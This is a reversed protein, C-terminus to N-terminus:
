IASYVVIILLVFLLPYLITNAVASQQHFYSIWGMVQERPWQIYCDKLLSVLDYTFPGYMADQFDIIGLRVTDGKTLIMINRSHYDRHIVVQPQKSMENSLWNFTEHLLVEEKANLAIKLYAQLFWETFLNLEYLIFKKDFQPLPMKERTACLQIIHLQDMAIKYLSDVTEASLSHLLLTDGFDDLIIFGDTKDAAHIQPVCIGATTLLTAVALFPEITEKDPPADMVVQTIGKYYLRYYRRFSADGALPTLNFETSTLTQELWKSLVNQRDHM